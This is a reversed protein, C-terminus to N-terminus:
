PDHGICSVLHYFWWQGINQLSFFIRLLWRLNCRNPLVASMSRLAATCVRLDPCPSAVGVCAGERRLVDYFSAACFKVMCIGHYDRMMLCSGAIRNFILLQSFNFDKPPFDRVLIDKFRQIQSASCDDHQTFFDKL